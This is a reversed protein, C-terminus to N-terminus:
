KPKNAKYTKYAKKAKETIRGVQSHEFLNKFYNKVGFFKSKEPKNGSKLKFHTSM